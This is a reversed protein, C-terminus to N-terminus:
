EQSTLTPKDKDGFTSLMEKVQEEAQKKPLVVGFESVSHHVATYIMQNLKTLSNLNMKGQLSEHVFVRSIQNLSHALGITIVNIRALNSVSELIRDLPGKWFLLTIVLIVGTLSFMIATVREFSEPATIVIVMGSVIVALGVIFSLVNLVLSTVFGAKASKVVGDLIGFSANEIARLHDTYNIQLDAKVTDFPLLVKEGEPSPEIEALNGSKEYYDSQTTEM